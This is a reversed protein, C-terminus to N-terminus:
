PSNPAAESAAAQTQVVGGTMGSLGSLLYSPAGELPTMGAAQLASSGAGAGISGLAGALGIDGYSTICGYNSLQRTAELGSGIVAGIGAKGAVALGPSAALSLGDTLGILLGTAGGAVADELLQSGRDGSIYGTILGFGTGIVGGIIAEPIFKGSPDTYSIPNGGVYAYLNSEGGGFGLPDKTTWRGTEPDYDRAGFRILGTDRDYLGGAFGFPQFGPNTDQIVRGWDDYDMAQAVQGSSTDVVLRPSGLLDKLIRYTKGGKIMYDPVNVHTGYVYRSVINGQGDLEAVPKLADQYLFGQVLVGNVKKGIRRNQGDIVYQIDSGSLKVDRLNGLEDYTYQTAGAGTSKGTLAGNADYTYTNNGWTLLRDQDDYSAVTQGGTQIRNGNALTHDIQILDLPREVVLRGPRPAFRQNAAKAGQQKRALLYEDQAHIRHLVTKPSPPQLGLRLCLLHVRECIETQSPRERRALHKDIVWQILHEVEPKLLRLGAPRGGPCRALASTVHHQQYVARYRLVQRSSIGWEKALESVVIKPMGRQASYPEFARALSQAREWEDQPIVMPSAHRRSRPALTPVPRLEHTAAPLMQGTALVRVQVQNMSLPGDIEVVRGGHLWQSGAVLTLKM